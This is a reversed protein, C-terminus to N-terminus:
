DNRRVEGKTQLNPMLTSQAEYAEIMRELEEVSIGLKKATEERLKRIKREISDALMLRWDDQALRGSEVSRRIWGLMNFYREHKVCCFKRRQPNKTAFLMGCCKCPRAVANKLMGIVEMSEEASSRKIANFKTATFVQAVSLVPQSL